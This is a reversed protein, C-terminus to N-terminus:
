CRVANWSCSAVSFFFIAAFCAQIKIIRAVCHM